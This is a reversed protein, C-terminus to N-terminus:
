PTHRRQVNWIIVAICQLHGLLCIRGVSADVAASLTRNQSVIITVSPYQYLDEGLFKTPDEIQHLIDFRNSCRLQNIYENATLTDDFYLTWLISLPSISSCWHIRDVTLSMRTCVRWWISEQTGRGTLPPQFCRCPPFSCACPGTLPQTMWQLSVLIYKM